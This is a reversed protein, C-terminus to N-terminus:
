KIKTKKKKAKTEEIEKKSNKNKYNQNIAKEKIQELTYTQASVTIYFPLLILSFAIKYNM